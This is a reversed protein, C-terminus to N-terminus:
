LKELQRQIQELAKTAWPAYDGDPFTRMIKAKRENLRNILQNRNALPLRDASRTHKSSNAWFHWFTLKHPWKAKNNVLDATRKKFEELTHNKLRSRVGKTIKDVPLWGLPPLTKNYRSVIQRQHETLGDLSLDDAGSVAGHTHKTVSRFANGTVARFANTDSKVVHPLVRHTTGGEQFDTPHFYPLKVYWGTVKGTEPDTARLDEILGLRLLLSRVIQVKDRGWNLGKAVFKLSACPQDTCQWLATYHYFTLLAIMDAVHRTKQRLITDLTQKSIVIGDRPAKRKRLQKEDKAQNREM